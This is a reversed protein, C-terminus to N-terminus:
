PVDYKPFPPSANYQPQQEVRVPEGGQADGNRGGARDQQQHPEVVRLAQQVPAGVRHGTGRRGHDLPPTHTRLPAHVSHLTHQASCITHLVHTRLTPAFRTHSANLLAISPLFHSCVFSHACPIRPDCTSAKVLTPNHVFFPTHTETPLTPSCACMSATALLSENSVQNIGLHKMLSKRSM